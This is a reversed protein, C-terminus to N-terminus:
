VQVTLKWELNLVKPYNLQESFNRINIQLYIPYTNAFYVRRLTVRYYKPILKFKLM